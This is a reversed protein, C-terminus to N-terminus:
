GLDEVKTKGEWDEEPTMCQLKEGCGECKPAVVTGVRGDPVEVKQGPHFKSLQEQMFKSCNKNMCLNSYM